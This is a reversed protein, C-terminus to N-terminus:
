FAFGHILYVEGADERNGNPDSSSGVDALPAGVLIDDFGDANVDGAWNVNRPRIGTTGVGNSNDEWYSAREGGGLHDGAERGAFALGRVAQTGVDALSVVDGPEFDNDGSIVYVKGAGDLTELTGDGDTDVEPSANPAAILLDTRGDGNFDGGYGVNYGALDGPQEGKIVMALGESLLDPTAPDDDEIRFGGAPNALYPNSFVIVVEGRDSDHHYNGLVVEGLGDENLDIMEAVGDGNIDGGFGVTYGLRDGPRGRVLVGFLRAPDDVDAVEIRALDRDGELTVMRRLLLYAAGSDDEGAATSFASPAGVVVDGLGDGNFDAVGSVHYGVQEDIREVPPDAENGDSNNHIWYVPELATMHLQFPTGGPVAGLEHGQGLPSGNPLSGPEGRVDGVIYQYPRPGPIRDYKGAEAGWSTTSEPDTRDGYYGGYQIAKGRERNRMQIM